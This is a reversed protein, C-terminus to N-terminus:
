CETSPVDLVRVIVHISADTRDDSLCKANPIPFLLPRGRPVHRVFSITIGLIFVIM